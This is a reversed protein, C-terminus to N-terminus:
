SWNVEHLYSCLVIMDQGSTGVWCTHHSVVALFGLHSFPSYNLHGSKAPLFPLSILIVLLSLAESPNYVGWHESCCYKCYGLCPLYRFTWQCIFPYLLHPVYIYLPINSLWYFSHFLTIQVSMSPGLTQGITHLLDSLSFCISYIFGYIHFRSFVTCILGIGFCLYLYHVHSCLPHPSPPRFRSRLM